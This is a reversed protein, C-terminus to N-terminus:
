EEVDGDLEGSGADVRESVPMPTVTEAPQPEQFQADTDHKEEFTQPQNQVTTDETKEAEYPQEAHM